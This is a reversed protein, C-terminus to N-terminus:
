AGKNLLRQATPITSSFYAAGRAFNVKYKERPRINLNDHTNPNEPFMRPGHVPHRASLEAFKLLHASRRQSLSSLGCMELATEYSVYMDKLIIKLCTREINTLKREQEVTLSSAFVASCYETTSRIFLCYIELLDETCFGVYKLKSLMGIRGYAKRCIESTNKSWDSIDESLWVGLVKVFHQRDIKQGDMTLRTQFDKNSTRTFFIYNNNKPETEDSKRKDM